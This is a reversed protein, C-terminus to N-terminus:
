YAVTRAEPRDPLMARIEDEPKFFGTEPDLMSVGPINVAGPIHGPRAYPQMEGSFVPAPLADILCTSGDSMAAMVEAKDAILRPRPDLTLSDPVAADVVAQGKQVPLGTAQWAKWGGDLLAANDFGIWRLMFWVRAAWMSNNDDYLVVRANDDVGLWEMAAGFHEPTPIAFGIPADTDVLAGTLDAFAAGPIHATEFNSLGSQAVFGDDGTRLHVTCDLVVLDDAGLQDVLWDTTVLSDMVMLM